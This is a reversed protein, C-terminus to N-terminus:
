NFDGIFREIVSKLCSKSISSTTIFYQCPVSIILDGSNIAKKAM